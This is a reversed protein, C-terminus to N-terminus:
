RQTRSRKAYRVSMTSRGHWPYSGVIASVATRRNSGSLVVTHLLSGGTDTGLTGICLDAAIAAASGGSSGGPVHDLAWPNHVAGFYTVASTGGLAFEHLNLKGLLIAGAKKLRSAVEADEMPVRDKFVGSAATTRIGATDINDKLAIPIGHLPGRWKGARQEAEMERAAALAQERTITIFANISPNYQDIRKLCAQTLEIPSADRRRLLDSVQKLTLTALDQSVAFAPLALAAAAGLGAAVFERRSISPM